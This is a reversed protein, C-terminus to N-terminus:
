VIRPLSLLVTFCLTFLHLQKIHQDGEDINSERGVNYNQFDGLRHPYIKTRVEGSLSSRCYFRCKFSILTSLQCQAVLHVLSPSWILSLSFHIQTTNTGFLFSQTRVSSKVGITCSCVRLSAHFLSTFGRRWANMLWSLPAAKMSMNLHWKYVWCIGIDSHTYIIM